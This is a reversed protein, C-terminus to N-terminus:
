VKWPSTQRLPSRVGVKTRVRYPVATGAGSINPFEVHRLIVRVVSFCGEELSVPSCPAIGFAALSSNSRGAQYACRLGLMAFRLLGLKTEAMSEHSDKTM